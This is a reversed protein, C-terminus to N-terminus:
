MPPTSMSPPEFQPIRLGPAAKQWAPTAPHQPPQAPGSPSWGPDWGAVERALWCGAGGGGHQTCASRVAAPPPPVGLISGAGWIGHSWWRRAYKFCSSFCGTVSSKWIRRRRQLSCVPQADQEALEGTNVSGARLALRRRLYINSWLCSGGCPFASPLDWRRVLGAPSLM